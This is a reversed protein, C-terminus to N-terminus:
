NEFESDLIIYHDTNISFDYYSKGFYQNFIKRDKVDHNGAVTLFPM